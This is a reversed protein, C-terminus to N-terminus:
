LGLYEKAIKYGSNEPDDLPLEGRWTPSLKNTLFNKGVHEGDVRVSSMDHMSKVSKLIEDAGEVGVETNHMLHKRFEKKMMDVTKADAEWGMRAWTYAGIFAAELAIKKIGKKQYARVSNKLLSKGIGKGRSSENLAINQHFVVPAGEHSTFNRKGKGVVNGTEDSIEFEVEISNLLYKSDFEESDEHRHRVSTIKSKHGERPDFMEEFDEISIDETGFIRKIDSKAVSQPLPTRKQSGEEPASKSKPTKADKDPNKKAWERYEKMAKQFFQKDRLATSFSVEKYRSRTESNPNPVKIRGGEHAADLWENWRAPVGGKAPDPEEDAYISWPDTSATHVAGLEDLVHSPVKFDPLWRAFDEFSHTEHKDDVVTKFAKQIIRQGMYIPETRGDYLGSASGEAVLPHTRDDVPYFKASFYAERGGMDM